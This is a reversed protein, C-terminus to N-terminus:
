RGRLYKEVCFSNTPHFSVPGPRKDERYQHEQTNYNVPTNRTRRSERFWELVGDAEKFYKPGKKISGKLRSMAKLAPLRDKGCDALLDNLDDDLENPLRRLYADFLSDSDSDPESDSEFRPAPM